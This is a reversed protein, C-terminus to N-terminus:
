TEVDVAVEFVEVAAGPAGSTEAARERSERIAQESAQQADTSEWYSLGIVKGSSRDVLLTFGKFGDQQQLTPLVDSEVQGIVDDVRDPQGEITTVRADM